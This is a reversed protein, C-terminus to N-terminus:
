RANRAELEALARAPFEEAPCNIDVPPFHTETIGADFLVHGRKTEYHYLWIDGIELLKRVCEWRQEANTFPNWRTGSLTGWMALFVTDGEVIPAEHACALASLRFVELDSM